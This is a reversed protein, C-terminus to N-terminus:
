SSEIMEKLADFSIEDEILVGKKEMMDIFKKKGKIRTKYFNEALLNGDKKYVVYLTRPLGEVNYYVKKIKQIPIRMIERKISDNYKVIHDDEILLDDMLAHYQAMEKLLKYTTYVMYVAAIIYYVITHSPQTLYIWIIFGVMIIIGALKGFIKYKRFKKEKKLDEEYDPDIDDM